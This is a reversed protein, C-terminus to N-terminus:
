ANLLAFDGWGVRWGFAFLPGHGSHLAIFAFAAGLTLVESQYSVARAQFAVATASRRPTTLHSFIKVAQTLKALERM